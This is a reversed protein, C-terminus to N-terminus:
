ENVGTVTKKIGHIRELGHFKICFHVFLSLSFRGDLGVVNYTLAGVSELLLWFKIGHRSM